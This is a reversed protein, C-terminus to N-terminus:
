PWRWQWWTVFTVVPIIMTYGDTNGFDRGNDILDGGTHDSTPGVWFTVLVVTIVLTVLTVMTVMQVVLTVM